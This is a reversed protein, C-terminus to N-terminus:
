SKRGGTGWGGTRARRVTAVHWYFHEGSADDFVATWGPPLTINHASPKIWSTEDTDNNWYYWDKSEADAHVTTAPVNM